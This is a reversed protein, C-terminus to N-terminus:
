RYDIFRRTPKSDDPKVEAPALGQKNAFYKVIARAEVPTIKVDALSAM